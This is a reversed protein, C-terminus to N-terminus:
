AVPNSNYGLSAADTESASWLGISRSGATTTGFQQLLIGASPDAITLGSNGFTLAYGGAGGMTLDLTFPVAPGNTFSIDTDDVLTGYFYSGEALDIVVNGSISGLQVVGLLKTQLAALGEENEEIGDFAASPAVTSGGKLVVGPENAGTGLDQVVSASGLATSEVVSSVAGGQPIVRTTM